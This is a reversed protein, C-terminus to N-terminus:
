AAGHKRLFAWAIARQSPTSNEPDRVLALAVQRWRAIATTLATTM